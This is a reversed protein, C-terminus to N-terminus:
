RNKQEEKAIARLLQKRRMKSRGDINLEKARAYLEEVTMESLDGDERSEEHHKQAGNEDDRNSQLDLSERSVLKSFRSDEEDQYLFALNSEEFKEFFEEWSIQELTEKGSYGPYDIRVIGIEDDSGTQKVQAPCGGKAEVWNRITEHDITAKASAM